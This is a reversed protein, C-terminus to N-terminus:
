KMNKIVTDFEEKTIVGDGDLDFDSFKSDKLKDVLMKMQNVIEDFEDQTEGLASTTNKIESVNTNITESFHTFLDGATSLNKLLEVSNNYLEKLKEIQKKLIELQEANEKNTKQLKENEEVYTNKTQELLEIQKENDEILKKLVENESKFKIQLNKMEDMTQKIKENEKIYIINQNQLKVIEKDSSDLLSLYKKHTEEYQGKLDSLIKLQEESKKLSKALEKNEEIYDNTIHELQVVNGHLKKNEENFKKLGEQLKKVDRAIASHVAVSDFISFSSTAIWLSGGIILIIGGTGGVVIGTVLAGVAAIGSFSAITLKVAKYINSLFNM